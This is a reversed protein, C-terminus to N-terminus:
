PISLPVSWHNETSTQMNHWWHSSGQLWSQLNSNSLALQTEGYLVCSPSLCQEKALDWCGMLPVRLRLHRKSLSFHNKLGLAFMPKTWLMTPGRQDQFGGGERESGKQVPCIQQSQSKMLLQFSCLTSTGRQWSELPELGKESYPRMRDTATFPLASEIQGHKNTPM